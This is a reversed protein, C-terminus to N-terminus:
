SALAEDYSATLELWSEEAHSLANVADAREKSLAAAKGADRDARIALKAAKKGTAM